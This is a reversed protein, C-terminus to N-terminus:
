LDQALDEESCSIKEKAGPILELLKNSAILQDACESQNATM